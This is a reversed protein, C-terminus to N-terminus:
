SAGTRRVERGATGMGAWALAIRMFKKRRSTGCTWVVVTCRKGFRPAVGVHLAVLICTSEVWKALSTGAM